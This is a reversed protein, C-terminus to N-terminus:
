QAEAQKHDESSRAELDFDDANGRKVIRGAADYQVFSDTPSADGPAAEFNEMPLHVDEVRKEQTSITGRSIFRTGSTFALTSARTSGIFEAGENTYTALRRVVRCAVITSAVAAPVNAIISMVANLNLLMFITAILNAVFAVVFFILGDHFILQVIRSRDRRPTMAVGLKVAALTLVCFDFCMSYIFTAALITNSTYTIACGTGPIWAAKLLIGHLLLSWHGIILAVLPVVIYWAQSWVAMTRLSLNISALGIAANGFIQNVTYLAQCNVPSTVNLAVAIGILAFLLVYRGGFYFIMPWKFKRKGTMYEWDFSLSTVFEWIYLGLLCHMFRGFAEGDKAIEDPSQWNVM